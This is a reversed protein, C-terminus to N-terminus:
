DYSIKNISSIKLITRLEKLITEESSYEPYYGYDKAKYNKSYYNDKKGTANLGIENNEIQYKLGFEKKLMNLMSFKDIPSKTFCDVSDNCEGFVILSM